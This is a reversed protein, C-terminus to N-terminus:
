NRRFLKRRGLLAALGLLALTGPVPVEGSPPSAGCDPTGPLCNSAFQYSGKDSQYKVAFPSFEVGNAITSAFRLTVNFMDSEGAQLTGGAGGGTESVVNIKTTANPGNGNEGGAAKNLNGDTQGYDHVDLVKDTDSGSRDSSSWPTVVVAGPDTGFAFRNLGISETNGPDSTNALTLMLGIENADVDFSTVLFSADGTLNYGTVNKNGNPDTSGAQLEWDATFAEDVSTVFYANASFPALTLGLLVASALGVLDKSTSRAM